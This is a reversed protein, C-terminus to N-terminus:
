ANKRAVYEKYIGRRMMDKRLDYWIYIKLGWGYLVICVLGVAQAVMLILFLGDLDINM